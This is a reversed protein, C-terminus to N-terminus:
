VTLIPLRLHVTHPDSVTARPARICDVNISRKDAILAAFIALFM